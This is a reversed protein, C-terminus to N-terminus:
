VLELESDQIGYQCPLKDLLMAHIITDFAKSLDVFVAGVLNGKDVNRRIDDLM